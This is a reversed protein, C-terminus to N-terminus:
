QTANRPSAVETGLFNSKKSASQDQLEHVRLVLLSSRWPNVTRFSRGEQIDDEIMTPGPLSVADLDKSRDDLVRGCM